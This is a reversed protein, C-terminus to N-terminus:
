FKYNEKRAQTKTILSLFIINKPSGKFLVCISIAYKKYSNRKFIFLPRYQLINPVCCCCKPNLLHTEPEGPNIIEFTEVFYGDM